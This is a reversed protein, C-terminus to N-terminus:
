AKKVLGHDYSLWLVLSVDVAVAPSIGNFKLIQTPVDKLEAKVCNRHQDM